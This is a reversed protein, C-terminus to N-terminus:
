MFCHCVCVPAYSLLLLFFSFSCSLFLSTCHGTCMHSIQVCLHSIYVHIIVICVYQVQTICVFLLPICRCVYGFSLCTCKLKVCTFQSLYECMYTLSHVCKSLSACMLFRFLHTHLQLVLMLSIYKKNKFVLLPSSIRVNVCCAKAMITTTTHRINHAERKNIYLSFFSLNGNISSICLRMCYVVCWSSSTSYFCAIFRKREYM